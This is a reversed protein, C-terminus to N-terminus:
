KRGIKAQGGHTITLGAANATPDVILGQNYFRAGVLRADNPIGLGWTGNVTALVRDPSALLECGPMGLGAMPLPLTFPGWAKRSFGLLMLAGRNNPLGKLTVTFLKGIRPGRTGSTALTIPASCTKGFTVYSSAASGSGETLTVIRDVTLNEFLECRGSPWSIRVDAAKLSGLGFSPWPTESSLVSSGAIVERVQRKGGAFLEVFAGVGGRNSRTGVPRVTLWHNNNGKGDGWFLRGPNGRGPGIINFGGIGLSGTYFLDLDGDNDFDGLTGGWGFETQAVGAQVAINTFTGDGDNRYLRQPRNRTAGINSAFLDIDGDIDGPAACMWFGGPSLGAKGRVDTFTANGNNHFLHIPTPAFFVDNCVAVVLDTFGDRDYDM